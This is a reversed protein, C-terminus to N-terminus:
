EDQFFNFFRIANGYRQEVDFGGYLDDDEQEEQEQEQEEQPTTEQDMLEYESLSKRLEYESMRM